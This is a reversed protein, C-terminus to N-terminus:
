APDEHSDSSDELGSVDFADGEAALREWVSLSQVAERSEGASTLTATSGSETFTTDRLLDDLQQEHLLASRIPSTEPRLVREETEALLSDAPLWNHMPWPIAARTVITEEPITVLQFHQQQCRWTLLRLFPDEVTLYDILSRSLHRMDRLSIHGIHDMYYINRGPYRLAQRILAVAYTLSRGTRRHGEQDLLWDLIGVAQLQDPTLPM